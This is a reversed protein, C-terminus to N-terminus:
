HRMGGLCPVTVGSPPDRRTSIKLARRGAVDEERTQSDAGHARPSRWHTDREGRPGGGGGGRRLRYCDLKFFRNQCQIQM